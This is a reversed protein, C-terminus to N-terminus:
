AARCDQAGLARQLDDAQQRERRGGRILAQSILRTLHNNARGLAQVLERNVADQFRAAVRDHGTFLADFLTKRIELLVSNERAAASMSHPLGEIMALVGCLRGPGLIGIRHRRGDQPRAIELAGRVIIFVRACPDGDQFLIRGRDLESVEAQESVAEIEVPRFGGFIPLLPLFRRYDFACTGRRLASPEATLGSLPPAVNEPADAAVIRANLDRLRRCLTGTIRNQIVFVAPRRQALLMRFAEREIRYGAVPTRAIVTASRTARDLLAMEGLVSGSGLEAVKAEGGGPLVTIVDTTGSELIFASDAPQGQRVLRAGPEFNVPEFIRVIDALEAPALGAFLPIREALSAAIPDVASPSDVM